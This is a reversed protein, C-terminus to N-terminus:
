LVFCFLFVYFSLYDSSEIDAGVFCVCAEFQGKLKEGLVGRGGCNWMSKLGVAGLRKGNVLVPVRTDSGNPVSKDSWLDETTLHEICNNTYTDILQWIM